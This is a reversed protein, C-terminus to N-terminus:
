ETDEAQPPDSHTLERLLVTAYGGAPLSFSLRAGESEIQATL